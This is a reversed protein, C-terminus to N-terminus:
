MAGAEEWAKALKPGQLAIWDVMEENCAWKSATTSNGALGSETLFCHVIEHRLTKQMGRIAYLIEEEPEDEKIDTVDKIVIQKSHFNSCGRASPTEKLIYHDNKKSVIIAYETGLITVKESFPFDM